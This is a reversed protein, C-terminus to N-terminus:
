SDLWWDPTCQHGTIKIYIVWSNKEPIYNMELLYIPNYPNQHHSVYIWWFFSMLGLGQWYWPIFKPYRPYHHDSHTEEVCLKLVSQLRLRRLILLLCWEIQIVQVQCFWGDSIQSVMNNWTTQDDIFYSRTYSLTLYSESFKWCFGVLLLGHVLPLRGAPWASFLSVVQGHKLFPTAEDGFVM